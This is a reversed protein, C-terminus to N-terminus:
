KKDKEKSFIKIMAGDDLGEENKINGQPSKDITSTSIRLRASSSAQNLLFQLQIAITSIMGAAIRSFKL